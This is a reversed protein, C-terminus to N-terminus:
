SEIQAIRVTGVHDGYEANYLHAIKQNSGEVIRNMAARSGHQLTCGSLVSNVHATLAEVDTFVSTSEEFRASFVYCRKSMM